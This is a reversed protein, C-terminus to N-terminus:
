EEKENVRWGECCNKIKWKFKKFYKILSVPMFIKEIIMDEKIIFDVEWEKVNFLGYVKWNCKHNKRGCILDLKVGSNCAYPDSTIGKCYPCIFKKKPKITNIADKKTDFILLDKTRPFNAKQYFNASYYRRRSELKSFIETKSINLLKSYDSCIERINDLTSDRHCDDKDIVNSIAKEFSDDLM